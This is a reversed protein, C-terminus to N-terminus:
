WLYVLVFLIPWIAVVFIWYMSMAILGAHSEQTFGKSRLCVCLLAIVAVIVHVAHVGIVTYFTAGYLSSGLTIGYGVIQYWEYGQILLFCLGGAFTAWLMVSIDKGETVRRTSMLMTWGSCLLIFTNVATVIIPLQEQDIPPWIKFDSRVVLYAAVLGTFMMVETILFIAMGLIANPMLQQRENVPAVAVSTM